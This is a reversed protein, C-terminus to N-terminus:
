HMFKYPIVSDTNNQSTVVFYALMLVISSIMFILRVNPRRCYSILCPLYVIFGIFFFQTLRALEAVTVAFSQILLALYMM